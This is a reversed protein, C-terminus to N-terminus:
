LTLSLQPYQFKIVGEREGVKQGLQESFATEMQCLAIQPDRKLLIICNGLAVEGMGTIPHRKM